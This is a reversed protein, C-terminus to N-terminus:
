DLVLCNQLNKTLGYYYMNAFLAFFLRQVRFPTVVDKNSHKFRQVDNYM